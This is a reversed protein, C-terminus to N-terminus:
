TRRQGTYIDDSSFKDCYFGMEDLNRDDVDLTIFDVEDGRQDSFVTTLKVKHSGAGLDMPQGVQGSSHNDNWAAGSGTQTGTQFYGFVNGDIEIVYEDHLSDNSLRINSVQVKTEKRVCFTYELYQGQILHVAKRGIAKSRYVARRDRSSLGYQWPLTDTIKSSWSTDKVTKM